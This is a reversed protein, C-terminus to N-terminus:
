PTFYGWLVLNGSATSTTAKKGKLTSSFKPAVDLTYSASWGSVYSTIKHATSAANGSSNFVKCEFVNASSINTYKTKNLTIYWNPEEDAKNGSALKTYVGSAAQNFEWSVKGARAPVTVSIAMILVFISSVLKYMKKKM